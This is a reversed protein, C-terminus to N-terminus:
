AEPQGYNYFKRPGRAVVKGTFNEVILGRCNETVENWMRAYMCNKSYDYISLPLTPHTQVNVYGEEVMKNLDELPFLDTIYM